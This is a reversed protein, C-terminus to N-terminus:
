DPFMRGAFLEEPEDADSNVFVEYLVPSGFFADRLQFDDLVRSRLGIWEQYDSFNWENLSSVLGAAIPNQHIYRILKLCYENSDVHKVKTQGQFLTGSHGYRKNIAQVYANFTTRLFGGIDGDQKQRVLLHYHNPMLCYATVAVAYRQLYKQLLSVLYVYNEDEFFIREKHAGRNYIHYYHGDLYKM